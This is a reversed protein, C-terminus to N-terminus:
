MANPVVSVIFSFFANNARVWDRQHFANFINLKLLAITLYPRFFGRSRCLCSFCEGRKPSSLPPRWLSSPLLSSSSSVPVLFLTLCHGSPRPCTQRREWEIGKICSQLQKFVVQKVFLFSPLSPPITSSPTCNFEWALIQLSLLSIATNSVLAM